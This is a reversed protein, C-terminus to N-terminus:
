RREPAAVGGCRQVTLFHWAGSPDPEYRVEVEDGLDSALDRMQAETRYLMHWDLVFEPVWRVQPDEAANGVALRGGSRLLGICRAILQRAIPEPLYDFLGASYVLDQGSLEAIMEPNSFLQRFSLYRCHVEVADGHALAARRLREHAHALAGEDQDVLTFVVRPLGRAAELYDEIERAPGAGLSLIRAGEAPAAQAVTGSLYRALLEKRAPVTAALREDLGLQDLIRGFVSEALRPRDYMWGMAVYDGPYGLPKEYCRWLFPSPRLHPTVLTETMRKAALLAEPADLLEMARRNGETRIREWEPRMVAEASREMAELEGDARAGSGRLQRERADLVRRWHQLFLAAEACIGRYDRGVAGYADLGKAVAADFDLRDHLRRLEGVELLRDLFRVAVKSRGPRAESRVVEAESRFAAKEGLMLTVPLKSGVEPLEPESPSYAAGTLSIDHLKARRGDVRLEPALDPALDRARYRLARYRVSGGLGGVLEAYSEAM